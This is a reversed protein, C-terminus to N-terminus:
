KLQEWGAKGVILGKFLIFFHSLGIFGLFPMEIWTKNYSLLFEIVLFSEMCLFLFLYAKYKVPSLMYICYYLLVNCTKNGLLYFYSRLAMKVSENLPFPSVINPADVSYRVFLFAISFVQILFLIKLAKM